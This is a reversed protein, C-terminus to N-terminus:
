HILNGMAKTSSQGEPVTGFKWHCGRDIHLRKMHAAYEMTNNPERRAHCSEDLENTIVFEDIGLAALRYVM